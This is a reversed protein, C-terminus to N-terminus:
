IRGRPPGTTVPLQHLWPLFGACTDVFMTTLNLPRRETCKDQIGSVKTATVKGHRNTKGHTPM